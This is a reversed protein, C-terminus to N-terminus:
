RAVKVVEVTSDLDGDIVLSAYDTAESETSFREDFSSGHAEGTVRYM